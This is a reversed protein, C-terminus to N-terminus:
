IKKKGDHSRGIYQEKSLVASTSCSIHIILYYIANKFNTSLNSIDFRIM